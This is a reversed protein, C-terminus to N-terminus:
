DPNKVWTCALKGNVVQWNMSLGRPPKAETVPLSTTAVLPRQITYM